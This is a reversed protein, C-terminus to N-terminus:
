PETGPTPRWRRRVSFTSALGLRPSRNRRTSSSSNPTAVVVADIGDGAIQSRWDAGVAPIELERAFAQASGLSHSAVGVLGHGCEQAARAHMAAVWGCGLLAIRM